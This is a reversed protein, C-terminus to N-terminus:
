GTCGIPLSAWDPKRWKPPLHRIAFCRAALSIFFCFSRRRCLLCRRLDYGFLNCLTLAYLFCDIREVRNKSSSGTGWDRFRLADAILPLLGIRFLFNGYKKFLANVFRNLDDITYKDILYALWLRYAGSTVRVRVATGNQWQSRSLCQCVRKPLRKRLFARWLLAGPGRSCMRCIRVSLKRHCSCSFM